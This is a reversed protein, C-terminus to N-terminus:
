SGAHGNEEGDLLHDFYTQWFHRQAFDVYNKPYATGPGAWEGEPIPEVHKAGASYNLYHQGSMEGGAVRTQGSWNEADDQELTGSAVFTALYSRNSAKKFQYSADKEVICWSWIETKGPGM